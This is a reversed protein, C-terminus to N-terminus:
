TDATGAVGATDREVLEEATWGGLHVRLPLTNIFMGLLESRARTQRATAWCSVGSSSMTEDAAHAAVVSGWAAHFMTAASVGLRRAQARVRGCTSSDLNSGRREPRLETETCTWYGSRHRRSTSRGRAQEPLVGGCRQQCGVGAGAGCSQSVAGAPPLRRVQRESAGVVESIILKQSTNCRRRYPAAPAPCVLTSSHPDAAVQLQMLAGAAFGSAAAGAEVVGSDARRLRLAPDLTLRWRRSASAQRYVVQVPRPLREWSLSPVCCTM